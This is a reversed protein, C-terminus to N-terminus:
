HRSRALCEALGLALDAFEGIHCDFAGDELGLGHRNRIVFLKGGQDRHGVSELYSHRCALEAVGAHQRHVVASMDIGRASRFAVDDPQDVLVAVAAELIELTNGRPGAHM